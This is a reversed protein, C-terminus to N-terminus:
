ANYFDETGETGENEEILFFDLIERHEGHRQSLGFGRKDIKLDRNQSVFIVNNGVCPNKDNNVAM